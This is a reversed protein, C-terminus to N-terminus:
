QKKSETPSPPSSEGSNKSQTDETPSTASKEAWPPREPKQPEQSHTKDQTTHKVFDSPIASRSTEQPSGIVANNLKHEIIQLTSIYLAPSMGLEPDVLMKIQNFEKKIEDKRSESLKLDKELLSDIKEIMKRAQDEQQRTSEEPSLKAAQQDIPKPPEEFVISPRSKADEVFQDMAKDLMKQYEPSPTDSELNKEVLKELVNMELLKLRKEVSDFQAYRLDPLAFKGSENKLSNCESLSAKISKILSELGKTDLKDIDRNLVDKARKLIGRIKTQKDKLASQARESYRNLVTDIAESSIGQENAPELKQIESLIKQYALDSQQFYDGLNEQILRNIEKSRKIIKEKNEQNLFGAPLDTEEIPRQKTRLALQEKQKQMERKQAEDLAKSTTEQRGGMEDKEQVPDPHAPTGRKTSKMEVEKSTSTDRLDFAIKEILQYNASLKQEIANAENLLQILKQPDVTAQTRIYRQIELLLRKLEQNKQPSLDDLQNIVKHIGYSPIKELISPSLNFEGAKLATEISNIYTPTRLLYQNLLTSKQELQMVLIYILDNALNPRLSKNNVLSRLSDITKNFSSKNVEFLHGETKYKDVVGILEGKMTSKDDVKLLEDFLTEIRARENLEKRIIIDNGSKTMVKIDGKAIMKIIEPSCSEIFRQLEKPNDALEKLVNRKRSFLGKPELIYQVHEIPTNKDVLYDVIDRLPVKNFQNNTNFVRRFFANIPNSAKFPNAGKTRAFTQRITMAHDDSYTDFASRRTQAVPNVNFRAPSWDFLDGNQKIDLVFKKVDDNNRNLKVLNLTEDRLIQIHQNRIRTFGLFFSERYENEKNDYITDFLQRIQKLKEMPDKFQGLYDRLTEPNLKGKDGILTAPTLEVVPIVEAFQTNDSQTELPPNESVVESVSATEIPKKPEKLVTEVASELSFLYYDFPASEEPKDKYITLFAKAMVIDSETPNSQRIVEPLTDALSMNDTKEIKKCLATLAQVADEYKQQQYLKRVEKYEESLSAITPFGVNQSAKNQNPEKM